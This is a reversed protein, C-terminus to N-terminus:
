KALILPSCTIFNTFSYAYAKYHAHEHADQEFHHSREVAFACQASLWKTLQKVIVASCMPMRLANKHANQEFHHSREVAFACQASLWKTLQKMIVCWLM